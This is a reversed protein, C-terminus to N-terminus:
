QLCKSIVPSGQLRIPEWYHLKNGFQVIKQELDCWKKKALWFSFEIISDIVNRPKIACALWIAYSHLAFFDNTPFNQLKPKVEAYSDTFRVSSKFCLFCSMKLCHTTGSFIWVWVVPPMKSNQLPPPTVVVPIRLVHPPKNSQFESPM